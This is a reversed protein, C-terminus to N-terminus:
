GKFYGNGKPAAVVAAWKMKEVNTGLDRFIIRNYVAKEPWVMVWAIRRHQNYKTLDFNGDNIKTEKETPIKNKALPSM